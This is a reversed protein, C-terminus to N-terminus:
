NYHLKWLEMMMKDNNLKWSDEESAVYIDDKKGKPITVFGCEVLM